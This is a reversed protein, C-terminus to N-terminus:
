KLCTMFIIMFHPFRPAVTARPPKVLLPLNCVSLYIYILRMYMNMYTCEAIKAIPRFRSQGAAPVPHLFPVPEICQTTATGGVVFVCLPRQPPTIIAGGAAIVCQQTHTTAETHVQNSCSTKKLSPKTKYMHHAGSWYSSRARATSTLVM